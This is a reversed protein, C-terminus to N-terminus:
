IKLLLETKIKTICADLVSMLRHEICAYICTVILICKCANYYMVACTHLAFFMQSLVVQYIALLMVYYVNYVNSQSPYQNSTSVHMYRSNVMPGGEVCAYNVLSKLMGVKSCTELINIVHTHTAFKRKGRCM